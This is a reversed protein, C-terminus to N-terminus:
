LLTVATIMVLLVSPVILVTYMTLLFGFKIATKFLGQQYYTKLSLFYYVFFASYLGTEITDFPSSDPLAAIVSFLIFALSHLHLAYVLHEVYYKRSRLHVLKLLLAYAPLLFFLAVPAKDAFERLTDGPSDLAKVAQTYLFAEAWGVAEGNRRDVAFDTILTTLVERAISDQRALIADVAQHQAEDIHRKFLSLDDQAVVAPQDDNGMDLTGEVPASISTFSFAFFFLLSTFLYLRIPSIYAARRNRSFEVSLAGPKFFLLKLSRILRGDFDFAEQILQWLMPPLSRRYDRNNQGCNSCFIGNRETACNACLTDM